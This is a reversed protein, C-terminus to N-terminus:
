TWPGARGERRLETVSEIRLTSIATAVLALAVSVWLVIRVESGGVAGGISFVLAAVAVGTTM